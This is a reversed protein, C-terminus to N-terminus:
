SNLHRLAINIAETRSIKELLKRLYATIGKNVMTLVKERSWESTALIIKIQNNMKDNRIINIIQEGDMIPMNWDLFIVDVSSNSLINLAVEGNEALLFRFEKVKPHEQLIHQILSRTSPSDDVLLINM